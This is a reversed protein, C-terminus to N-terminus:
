LGLELRASESMMARDWAPDFVLQVEVEKVGPISQVKSQAEKTLVDGMGCGPATLTMKIFVSFVKDDLVSPTIDCEYVLGLDVINVPIEPDFCTKLQDWVAKKVNEESVDKPDLKPLNEATKGLADAYENAIRAMNGDEGIVTFSGGLAQTLTVVEGKRLTVKAGSPVQLAECDRKLEIPERM